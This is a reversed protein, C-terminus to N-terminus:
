NIQCLLIQFDPMNREASQMQLYHEAAPQFLSKLTGLHQSLTHQGGEKSQIESLEDRVTESQIRIEQHM